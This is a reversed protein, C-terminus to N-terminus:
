DGNVQRQHCYICALQGSSDIPRFEHGIGACIECNLDDVNANYLKRVEQAGAPLEPSSSLYRAAAHLDAISKFCIVLHPYEWPSVNDKCAVHCRKSLPSAGDTEVAVRDSIPYASEGCVEAHELLQNHLRM